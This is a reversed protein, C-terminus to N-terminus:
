TRGELRTGPRPAVPIVGTVGALATRIAVQVRDAQPIRGTARSPKLFFGLETIIEIV